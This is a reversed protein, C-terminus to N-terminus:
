TRHGYGNAPVHVLNAMLKTRPFPVPDVFNKILSAYVVNLPPTFYSKVRVVHVHMGSSYVM